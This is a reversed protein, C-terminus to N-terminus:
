VIALLPMGVAEVYARDEKRSAPWSINVHEVKSSSAYHCFVTIDGDVVVQLAIHRMNERCSIDVPLTHEHLAGAVLASFATSPGYWRKVWSITGLPLKVSGSYALTPKVSACARWCYSQATATTCYSSRIRGTISLWGSPKQLSITSRRRRDIRPACTMPSYETSIMWITAAQMALSM